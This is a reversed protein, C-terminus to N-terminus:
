HNLFENAVLCKTLYEAEKKTASDWDWDVERPKINPRPLFVSIEEGTILIFAYDNTNFIQFKM